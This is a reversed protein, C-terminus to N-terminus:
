SARRRRGDGGHILALAKCVRWVFVSSRRNPGYGRVYRDRARGGSVEGRHVPDGRPKRPRGRLPAGNWWRQFAPQESGRWVEGRAGRGSRPVGGSAANHLCGAHVDANYRKSLLEIVSLHNNMAAFRCARSLDSAGFEDILEVIVSEDLSVLSAYGLYVEARRRGEIFASTERLLRRGEDTQLSKIVETGLLMQSYVQWPVYALVGFERMVAQKTRLSTVKRRFVENQSNGPGPMLTVDSVRQKMEEVSMERWRALLFDKEAYGAMKQFFVEKLDVDSLLGKFCRMELVYQVDRLKRPNLHRLVGDRILKCFIVQEGFGDQTAVANEATEKTKKAIEASELDSAKRKNTREIGPGASPHQDDRELRSVLESKRGSVSLQRRKLEEKLEPVKLTGYTNM